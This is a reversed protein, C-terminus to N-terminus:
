FVMLHGILFVKQFNNLFSSYQVTKDIFTVYQCSLVNKTCVYFADFPLYLLWRAFMASLYSFTVMHASRINTFIILNRSDIECLILCPVHSSNTIWVWLRM